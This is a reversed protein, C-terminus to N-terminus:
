QLLLVNDIVYIRNGNADVVYRSSVKMERGKADTVIFAGKKKSVFLERGNLMVLRMGETLELSPESGDASPVFMAYYYYRLEDTLATPVNALMKADESEFAENSPAFILVKATKGEPLGASQETVKEQVALGTVYENFSAMDKDTSVYVFVDDTKVEKPPAVEATDQNSDSDQLVYKWVAYGGGILVVVGLIVLWTKKSKLRVKM